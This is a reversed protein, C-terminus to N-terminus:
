SGKKKRSYFRKRYFLFGFYALILFLTILTIRSGIVFSKPKYTFVLMGAEYAHVATYISNARFLEIPEGNLEAKWGPFLSYKESVFIFGPKSVELEVSEPSYSVPRVASNDGLFLEERFVLDNLGIKQSTNFINPVVIGGDMYYRTLKDIQEYRSPQKALLVYSFNQLTESDLGEFDAESMSIIVTHLPDFISEQMLNHLISSDDDGVLLISNETRLWRPVFLNNEYLYPGFIFNDDPCEACYGALKLDPNQSLDIEEESLFYKVNHIGFLKAVANQRALSFYLAVDHLWINGGGDGNEIGLYVSHMASTMGTFDKLGLNYLRFYDDDASISQLLENQEIDQKHDVMKPPTYSVAFELLILGALIIAIIFEKRIGLRFRKKLRAIMASFGFGALVSSAFVFLVFMRRIIRFKSFGPVLKYTIYAVPTGLTILFVLVALLSFFLVNKNRINSFSIAVLVLCIIGIKSIDMQGPVFSKAFEDINITHGLHEEFSFAEARSSIGTFEMVPLFKIAAIGIFVVAMVLGVFITKARRRYAILRFLFFCGLMFVTGLLFIAGGSFVQLALFVGALIAHKAWQKKRFALIIFLFIFPMYMMASIFPMFGEFVITLLFGNFVYLLGSILSANENRFLEMGLFYMGIGALIIHLLISINITTVPDGIIFQLLHNLEFVPLEPNALFPRGGWYYGTWLPIRADEISYDLIKFLFSWASPVDSGGLNTTSIFSSFFSLFIVILIVVRLIHRSHKSSPM